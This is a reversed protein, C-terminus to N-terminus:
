ETPRNEASYKLVKGLANRVTKVGPKSLAVHACSQFGTGPMKWDSPKPVQAMLMTSFRPRFNKLSTKGVSRIYLLKRTENEQTDPSPGLLNLTIHRPLEGERGAFISGSNIMNKRGAQTYVPELLLM